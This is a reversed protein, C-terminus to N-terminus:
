GALAPHDGRLLDARRRVAAGAGRVKVVVSGSARGFFVIRGFLRGKGSSRRTFLWAFDGLGLVHNIPGWIPSYLLQWFLGVVAASMMMPLLLLTTVFGKLSQRLRFRNARHSIIPPPTREYEESNVDLPKGRSPQVSNRGIDFSVNEGPVPVSRHVAPTVADAAKRPATTKRTSTRRATAASSKRPRRATTKKTTRAM